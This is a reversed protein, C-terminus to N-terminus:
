AMRGGDILYTQGTIYSADDSLLFAALAAVEEPRGLRGLPLTTEVETRMAPTLDGVLPTDIVGPAMANVRINRRAFELAAQRTLAMVGAKSVTYACFNPVAHLGGISATNVVAGGVGGRVILPLLHHLVLFAGRLNVGMVRDWLEVPYDAIDSGSAGSVGANNCIFDLRGHRKTCEGALAAVAADDAVDCVIAEAGDPLQPCPQKDVALVSAGEESLRTVMAKGLGSAAGTVVAVKGPFRGPV